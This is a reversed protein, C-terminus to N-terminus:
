GDSFGSTVHFAKPRAVAVDGRWWAVLGIQGTDAYKDTLIQIQLQTRVGIFLQRFDATFIDSALNSTGQTLTNPVQNTEFRSLRDLYYGPVALPQNTTDKPKALARASRPSYIVATPDENNDRLTGAADVLPDYSGLAAGNAGLSATTIGYTNKVGRPEPATGTGYLAAQDVKTAMVAAFAQRLQDDDELLERSLVVLGALVKADLTIKGLTADSPAITAGESHWVM